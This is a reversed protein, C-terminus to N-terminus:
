PFPHPVRQFEDFRLPREILGLEVPVRAIRRSGFHPWRSDFNMPYTGPVLTKMVWLGLEKIGPPTLDVVLVELGARAVAEVGRCLREWPTKEPQPGPLSLSRPSDWWPDLYPAMDPRAYLRGHASMTTVQEAVPEPMEGGAKRLYDCVLVWGAGLEGLARRAARNLDFDAAAAIFRAPEGPRPSAGVAVVLHAGLDLKVAACRAELGIEEFAAFYEGVRHPTSSDIELGFIPGPLKNIM